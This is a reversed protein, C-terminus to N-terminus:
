TLGLLACIVANHNTTKGAEVYTHGLFGPENVFRAAIHMGEVYSHVEQELFDVTPVGNRYGVVFYLFVTAM